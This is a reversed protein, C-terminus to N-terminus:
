YFIKEYASEAKVTKYGSTRLAAAGTSLIAKSNTLTLLVIAIFKYLFNPKRSTAM